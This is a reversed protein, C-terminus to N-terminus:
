EPPCRDGWLGELWKLVERCFYQNTFTVKSGMMHVRPLMTTPYLQRCFGSHRSSPDQLLKGQVLGHETAQNVMATSHSNRAAKTDELFIVIHTPHGTSSVKRHATKFGLEVSLLQLQTHTCTHEEASRM